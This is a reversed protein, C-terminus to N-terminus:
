ACDQHGCDCSIEIIDHNATHECHESCFDSNQKKPCSCAENGCTNKEAM